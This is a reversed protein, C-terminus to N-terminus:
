YVFQTVVAYGHSSATLVFGETATSTTHFVRTAQVIRTPNSAPVTIRLGNSNAVKYFDTRNVDLAHMQSYLTGGLPFRNAFIYTTAAAVPLSGTAGSFGIPLVLEFSTLLNSCLGAFPQNPNGIGFSLITPSNAPANGLAFALQLVGSNDAVQVGHSMPVTNGSAICGQGTSVGSGAVAVGTEVDLAPFTGATQTAGHIRAEWILSGVGTYVFPAGLLLRLAPSFATPGGSVTGVPGLSVNQRTLVVTNTGIYNGDFGYGASQFPRGVGMILEMDLTRTAGFTGPAGDARFRLEKIQKISGGVDSHVQQYRYTTGASFPFLSSTSGETTAAITPSVISQQAALPLVLLSLVALASSTHM